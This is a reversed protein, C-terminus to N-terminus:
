TGVIIRALSMGPAQRPKPRLASSARPFVQARPPGCRMGHARDRPFAVDRLEAAKRYREGLRQRSAAFERSASTLEVRWRWGAFAVTALAGGEALVTGKAGLRRFDGFFCARFVAGSSGRYEGEVGSICRLTAGLGRPVGQRRGQISPPIRTSLTLVILTQKPSTM